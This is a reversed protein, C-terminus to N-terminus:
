TEVGDAKMRRPDAQRAVTGPPHAYWGDRDTPTPRHRIKLVTFMGGMDIYSFPGRAGRMPISNEPAPMDHEGMGAMSTMTMYGPLVRAMRRDLTRPDTGVFTPKAHGMQNMMHHTMHCHM